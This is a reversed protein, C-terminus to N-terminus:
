YRSISDANGIRNQWTKIRQPQQSKGVDDRRPTNQGFLWWLLGVEGAVLALAITIELVTLEKSPM